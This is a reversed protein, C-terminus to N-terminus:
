IAIITTGTPVPKSTVLTELKMRMYVLFFANDSSFSARSSELMFLQNGSSDEKSTKEKKELNLMRETAM